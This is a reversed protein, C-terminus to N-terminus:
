NEEIRLKQAKNFIKYFTFIVLLTLFLLILTEPFVMNLTVGIITGSLLSPITLAAM